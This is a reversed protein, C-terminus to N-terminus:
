ATAATALESLLVGVAPAFTEPELLLSVSVVGPFPMDFFYGPQATIGHGSILSAVLSDEDVVAPFRLLANWGGEPALVTVTGTPEGAVLERLTALNEQCRGRVRATQAPVEALWQPLRAALVDSFPLYADAIRDLRAQAAAVLDEPGSVEIWAVKAGPAALNKSLGDLAFTLVRTEGALRRPNACTAPPEDPAIRPPAADGAPLPKAAPERPALGADLWYDFFVEDAILPIDQTAAYAVLAEREFDHVYSGTPNNPNIAVIAAPRSWPTSQDSDTARAGRTADVGQGAVLRSDPTPANVESPVEHVPSAFDALNLEWRGVWELPYPAVRASELRAIEAVLPYGPTPALVTDGPDCFLKMLWSYGQSTSSLLYLREPDVARNDRRTLFDALLERTALPGRPTAQYVPLDPYGLGHRTPNSDALRVLHQGRAAAAREAKAVANPVGLETRKSFKM